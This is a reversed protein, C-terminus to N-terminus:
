ELGWLARFQAQYDAVLPFPESTSPLDDATIIWQAAVDGAVNPELSQGAFHRLLVDVARWMVENVEQGYIAKIGGDQLVKAIEPTQGQTIAPPPDTIGAGSLAAPLGVAMDGSGLVLVNADPNRRLQQAVKDPLTRGLSSLPADYTKMTCAPCTQKLREAFAKYQLDVSPFGSVNIMQVKAKGDTEAVTWDAMQRGALEARGAGAVSAIYGKDPQPPAVDAVSVMAGGGKHLAALEDAFIETPFGGTAVVADPVDRAVQGWAAKVSEPTLGQPIVKVKWGVQTAAEKLSKGLEVCAPVGCDLYVIDKGKAPPGEIPADIGISTPRTELQAIQARLRTVAGDAETSAAPTEAAPATSSDGSSGCGAVALAAATTVAALVFTRKM